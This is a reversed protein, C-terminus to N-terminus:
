AAGGSVGSRFAVPEAGVTAGWLPGAIRSVNFWVRAVTERTKLQSKGHYRGARERMAPCDTLFEDAGIRVVVSEPEAAFATRTTRKFLVRAPNGNDITFVGEAATKGDFLVVVPLGVLAEPPPTPKANKTM